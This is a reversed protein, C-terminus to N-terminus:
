VGAAAGSGVPVASPMRRTRVQLVGTLLLVVLGIALVVLGALFGIVVLLLTETSMGGGTGGDPTVAAAVSGDEPQAATAVGDTVAFPVAVVTGADGVLVVHHDGVELGTTDVTATAVADDVSFDDGQVPESYTWVSGGSDDGTWTLRLDLQDGASVEDPIGADAAAVTGIDGADIKRLLEDSDAAPATPPEAAPPAKATNRPATNRPAPSEARNGPATDSATTITPAAATPPLQVVPPQIVTGGTGAGGGGSTPGTPLTGPVTQGAFYVPTFTEVAADAAGHAGITLVGCQVAGSLCDVRKTSQGTFSARAVIGGQTFGANKTGSLKATAAAGTGTNDPWAVFGQGDQGTGGAGPVYDYGAGAAGGASPHKTVYGFLVYLGSGNTNKTFGSGTVTLTTGATATSLGTAPRVNTSAGRANKAGTISGDAGVVTSGGGGNGGGGNGGGGSGGGDGGGPNTPAQVTVRLTATDSAVRGVVTSGVVNTAVARYRDGDLGETATIRLTGTTAGSVSPGDQLDAWGSPTQQQWQVTPTPTGTTTVAFSVQKPTAPTTGGDPGTTAGTLTVAVDTPQKTVSPTTVVTFTRLGQDRAETAANTIVVVVRGDAALVFPDGTYTSGPTYETGITGATSGDIAYARLVNGVDTSGAASVWLRKASEDVALYAAGGVRDISTTVAPAGRLSVARLTADGDNSWWARGQADVVTGGAAGSTAAAGISVDAVSAGTGLDLVRALAAAQDFVVARKGVWDIGVSSITGAVSGIREATRTVARVTGGAPSPGVESVAGSGPVSGAGAAAGVAAVRVLGASGGNAAPAVQAVISGDAPDVAFAKAAPVAVSPKVHVVDRYAADTGREVVVWGQVNAGTGGFEAAPLSATAVINGTSPDVSPKATAVGPDIPGAVRKGDDDVVFYSAKATGVPPVQLVNVARPADRVVTTIRGVTTDGVATQVGTSVVGAVGPHSFEQGGGTGEAAWDGTVAISLPDLATGASYFQTPNSGGTIDAAFAAAGATTITTPLGTWSYKGDTVSRTGKTVDITAFAIRKTGPDSTTAGTTPDVLRVDVGATLSGTTPTLEIAPDRLSIVFTHARYDFVMAGSGAVTLKRTGPDYSGGSATFRFTGDANKSAGGSVSQGAAPVYNRFSQKFGWDLTGGSVTAAPGAADAATATPATGVVAATLGIVAAVTASLARLRRAPRTQTHM